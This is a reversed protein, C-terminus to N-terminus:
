HKCENVAGGLIDSSISLRCNPLFVSRFAVTDISLVIDVCLQISVTSDSRDTKEARAKQTALANCDMPDLLVVM